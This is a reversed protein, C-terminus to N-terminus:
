IVKLRFSPPVPKDFDVYLQGHCGLAIFARALRGEGSPQTQRRSQLWNSGQTARGTAYSGFFVALEVEPAERTFKRLVTAVNM